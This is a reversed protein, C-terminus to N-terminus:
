VSSLLSFKAPVADDGEPEMRLRLGARSKLEVRVPRQGVPVDVTLDIPAYAVSLCPSRLWSMVSIATAGARQRTVGFIALGILLRM